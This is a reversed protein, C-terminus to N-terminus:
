QKAPNVSYVVGKLACGCTYHKKLGERFGFRDTPGTIWHRPDFEPVFTLGTYPFAPRGAQGSVSRDMLKQGPENKGTGASKQQGGEVPIGSHGSPSEVPQVRQIQRGHSKRRRM